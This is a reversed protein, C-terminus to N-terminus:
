RAPARCAAPAYRRGRRRRGLRGLPGARWTTGAGTVNTSVEYTEGTTAKIRLIGAASADIATETKDTELLYLPDGVAVVAGDAVLWEVLTGLKPISINTGM